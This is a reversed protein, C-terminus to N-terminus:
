ARCGFQAMDDMMQVLDPRLIVPEDPADFPIFMAGEMAAKVSLGAYPDTPETVPMGLARRAEDELAQMARDYADPDTSAAAPLLAYARAMIAELTTM